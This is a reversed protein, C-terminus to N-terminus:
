YNENVQRLQVSHHHPPHPRTKAGCPSRGGVRGTGPPDREVPRLAWVGEVAEGGRGVVCM